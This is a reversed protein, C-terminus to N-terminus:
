KDLFCDMYEFVVRSYWPNNVSNDIWGVHGGHETNISIINENKSAANIPICCMSKDVLPDNKNSICLLPSDVNNIYNHCSDMEYYEQLSKYKYYPIILLEELDRISKCKLVKTFDIQINSKKAIKEVEEIRKKSLIAKLFQTVIGDCIKNKSLITTGKDINYGNSISITAIFPNAAKNRAIYNIALNAGSSFGILFKPADPYKKNIHNVVTIMDEMNVHRPFIAEEKDHCSLLSTGHGRRIYVITRFGHDMSLNTFTEIFPSRSDGGLGHLCLAIPTILDDSNSKCDLALKVGDHSSIYERRYDKKTTALSQLLTQAMAGRGFWIIKFVKASKMKSIINLNKVNKIFTIQPTETYNFFPALVASKVIECVAMISFASFCLTGYLDCESLYKFM